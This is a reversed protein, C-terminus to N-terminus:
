YRYALTLGVTRPRSTVNTYLPSRSTSHGHVLIPQEDTANNVFLAIDANGLMFGLKLSLDSVSPLGITNPDYSGNNPNHRPLDDDLSARYDYNLRFYSDHEFADFEWQGTFSATWPNVVIRDGDSTIAKTGPPPATLAGSPAYVDEDYQADIYGIGLGLTLAEIPRAQVTLEFGTSTASGANTTFTFGCQPLNYSFQIDSWKIVYASADLQLRGDMGRTKSGVEYSWVTDDDFLTPRDTLGLDALDPACASAVPNNYGGTRFGKSASVYWLTDETAQYSLALKPTVPKASKSGSDEAIPGVIPGAYVAHISFDTQAYRVGATVKLKDTLKFDAQGFFALQKDVTDIPDIKVTYLGQYLGGPFVDDFNEGTNDFFLDPLFIDEVREHHGQRARQYFAGVLWTLRADADQSQLRVEQTFSQQSTGERSPAYMGEPFYPNGTWVAAEFSALDTIGEQTRDYYSTNSTLLVPGLDWDIKLAPLTFRDSVKNALTNGSRFDHQDPNSLEEWYGVADNFYQDQYYFSPTITVSESPTFAMAARFVTTESWNSDNEIVNGTRFNVRSIYGGDRRQSASIRLGLKDQTLPVNVAAGAEYNPSGGSTFSLDSRAYASYETTSPQPTIFRVTGGESGAGFLTGQPGRLVEVRELDFIAPFASSGIGGVVLRSQIPTDDIYVGTAGSGADSSIGRISIDATASGAGRARSFTVGPTLRAIDDITRVGREDLTKQTYASVSIAVKQQNEERRAATVIIEELQGASAGTDASDQAQAAAGLLIQSLAAPLLLGMSLRRSVSM